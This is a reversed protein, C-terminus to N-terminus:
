AGKLGINGTFPTTGEKLSGFTWFAITLSFFRLKNPAGARGVVFNASRVIDREVIVKLKSYVKYM